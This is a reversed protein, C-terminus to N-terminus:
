VKHLQRLWEAICIADAVGDHDVDSKPFLVRAAAISAAKVNAKHEKRMRRQEKPPIGRPIKPKVPQVTIKEQWVKPKVLVVPIGLNDCVGHWFGCAWGLSFTSAANAGWLAHLDEIAVISKSAITKLFACIQSCQENENKIKFFELHNHRDIIVVAGNAGPDIGIFFSYM